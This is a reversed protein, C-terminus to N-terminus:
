GSISQFAFRRHLHGDTVTVRWCGTSPVVVISPFYNGGIGTFTQVFRGDGDLRRGVLTLKGSRAPAYWLIKTNVGHGSGGAYIAVQDPYEAALQRTYYFLYGIVPGSRIWPLQRPANGPTPPQGSGHVAASICIPSGAGIGRGTTLALALLALATIGLRKM